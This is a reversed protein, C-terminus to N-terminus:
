KQADGGELWKMVYVLGFLITTISQKEAADLDSM